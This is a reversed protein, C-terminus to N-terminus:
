FFIPFFFFFFVQLVGASRSAVIFTGDALKRSHQMYLLDRHFDLVCKRTKLEIWIISTFDDVLEVVKGQYFVNDWLKRRNGLDIVLNRYTEADCGRILGKGRVIQINRQGKTASSKKRAM